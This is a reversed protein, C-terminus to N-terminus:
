YRNVEEPSEPEILPTAEPGMSASSSICSLTVERPTTPDRPGVRPSDTEELSVSTVADIEIETPNTEPVPSHTLFQVHTKGNRSPTPAFPPASPLLFNTTPSRARDDVKGGDM